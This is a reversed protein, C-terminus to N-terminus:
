RSSGFLSSIPKLEHWMAAQWLRVKVAVERQSFRHVGSYVTGFMGTGLEQDAYLQYLEGFQVTAEQEVPSVDTSQQNKRGVQPMLAQKIAALWKKASDTDVGSERRPLRATASNLKFWEYNEGVFYINDATEIELCHPPGNADLPAGDYPRVALIEALPIAKYYKPTKDEHYMVIAQLDMRWYHRKKTPTQKSSHLMWGEIIAPPLAKRSHRVGAQGPIRGLPILESMAPDEAISAEALTQSLSAVIPSFTNPFPQPAVPTTPTMVADSAPEPSPEYTRCNQPIQPGCKKHASIGCDRCKLGQKSAGYIMKACFKCLTPAKFSHIAWTHPLGCGNPLDILSVNHPPHAAAVVCENPAAHACRKHFNQNCKSCKLGQKTLGILMEGCFDCFTPSFYSQVAVLHPHNPRDHRTSLM